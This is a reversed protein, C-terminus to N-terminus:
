TWRTCSAPRSVMQWSPLRWRGVRPRGCRVSGPSSSMGFTPGPNPRTQESQRTTGRWWWPSSRVGWTTIATRALRLEKTDIVSFDLKEYLGEAAGRACQAAGFEVIDYTVANSRVQIRVATDEDSTEITWEVGLKKGIPELFAKRINELYVGGATVYSIKDAADVSDVSFTMVAVVLTMIAVVTKM